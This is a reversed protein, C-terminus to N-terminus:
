EEHGRTPALALHPTLATAFSLNTGTEEFGLAFAREITVTKIATLHQSELRTIDLGLRARELLLSERNAVNFILNNIFYIYTVLVLTLLGFLCGFLRQPSSTFKFITTM